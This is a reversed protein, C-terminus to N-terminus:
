EIRNRLFRENAEYARLLGSRALETQLSSLDGACDPLHELASRRLAMAGYDIFEFAGGDKEFATVRDHEVQTNSRDFRGRNAFVSMTGLAEPHSALDHLPRAYDFPLYSDGYTVTFSADLLGAANRLAGGTGLPFEGDESYRITVPRSLGLMTALEEGDGLAERILTGLHGICLVIDDYGCAALRSLQWHAFPRGCIPILYKPVTRTLKGLRTALGGALVVAQM